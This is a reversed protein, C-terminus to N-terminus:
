RAREARRARWGRVADREYLVFWSLFSAGAIVSIPVGVALRVPHPVDVVWLLVRWLLGVGLAWGWVEYPKRRDLGWLWRLPAM